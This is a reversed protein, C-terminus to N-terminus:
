KGIAAFIRDILLRSGADSLHDDDDYFPVSNWQAVCRGAEFTDCFIEDSKVFHVRSDGAFEDLISAIFRNREKYVEYSTSINQLPTGNSEFDEANLKAIDWGVEPIPSVVTVRPSLVSLSRLFRRVAERKEGASLDVSGDDRLVGYRSETNREFGGERNNFSLSTIEGEIPYLFYTWRSVVIVDSVSKNLYEVASRFGVECQDKKLLAVSQVAVVSPVTECGSVVLRVGRIRRRELERGLEWSIARAHSDGYLAVTASAATDGFYCIEIGPFGEAPQTMCVDGISEIKQGLDEWQVNPPLARGLHSYTVGFIGVAILVASGIGAFAFIQRRTFLSRNRFPMEVFRWSLYSLPFVAVCILAITVPEPEAVARVRALALMPQHWLYVSYSILGIGVFARTSLLRAVATDARAFLIILATGGAPLLAFVGPFPTASEFTVIATVIGVLGAASAFQHISNSAISQEKREFLYKAALAGLLLEWARTFILYFAAGPRHVSAWEAMGFSVLAAVAMAPFLYRRAFKWVLALGIPFFLYFQEEVALSWTHLLPKLEAAADFYGREQWFFINSVFAAVSILSESFNRLASPWMWLWAFPVTVILVVFLAPLIRRARREYFSIITFSHKEAEELIVTTILYGSIVFFVDVGVYGGSFLTFGAHFLIVPVVAVARLGDIEPRYKM